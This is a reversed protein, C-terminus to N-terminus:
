FPDELHSELYSWGGELWRQRAAQLKQVDQESLQGQRKLAAQSFFRTLDDLQRIARNLMRQQLAEIEHTPREQKRLLDLQNLNAQLWARPVKEQDIICSLDQLRGDVQRRFRITGWMILLSSSALVLAIGVMWLVLWFGISLM